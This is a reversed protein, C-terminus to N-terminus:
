TRYEWTFNAFGTEVAQTFYERSKEVSDSGDPQYKSNWAWYRKLYDAKSDIKFRRLINTSCDIANFNEDFITCSMPLAELIMHTQEDAESRESLYTVLANRNKYKIRQMVANLLPKGPTIAIFESRGTEFTKKVMDPISVAKNGLVHGYAEQEKVSNLWHLLKVKDDFGYFKLAAPNCDIIRNDEDSLLNIQPNANFMAAVSQMANEADAKLLANQQEIIELSQQLQNRASVTENINLLVGRAFLINGEDDRELVAATEHFWIAEGAQNYLPYEMTFHNQDKHAFWDAYRAVILEYADAPMVAELMSIPGNLESVDRDLMKACNQSYTVRNLRFDWEWTGLGTYFEAQRIHQLEREMKLEATKIEAIDQMIGLIATPKDDEDRRSVAFKEQVWRYDGDAHMLRFQHYGSDANHELARHTHGLTGPVDDPHIRSRLTDYARPLEHGSFGLIKECYSSFWFDGTVLDWEWMGFHLAEFFDVLSNHSEQQNWLKVFSALQKKEM